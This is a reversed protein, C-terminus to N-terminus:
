TDYININKLIYIYDFKTGRSGCGLLVVLVELNSLSACCKRDRTFSLPINAERGGNVVVCTLRCWM